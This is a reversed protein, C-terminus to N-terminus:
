QKEARITGGFFIRLSDKLRNLRITDAKVLTMPLYLRYRTSDGITVTDVKTYSRLTNLQLTRKQARLPSRTTEFIMKFRISDSNTTTATVPKLSVAPQKVTTEAVDDVPDETPQVREYRPTQSSILTSIGWGIGGIAAIAAIAIVILVFIRGAGSSTHKQYNHEINERRPNLEEKAPLFNGPTFEYTGQNNKALTGVGVITYPKGLNLFQKINSLYFELDSRILPEIKHLRQVLFHIIKEDTESKPNFTFSLGEIPYYAERDQTNPPNVKNDLVFTGIGELQLTKNDYLYAALHDDFKM